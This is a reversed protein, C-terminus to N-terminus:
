KTKNGPKLTSIIILFLLLLTNIIMFWLVISLDRQYTVNKLSDIGNNLVGEIMNELLPALFLTGIIILAITIVAKIKMWLNDKVKWKTLASYLIGTLLTIIAAPTLINMDIIFVIEHAYKFADSSSIRDMSLTIVSMILLSSFWISMSVVHTIKLYKEYNEKMTKM